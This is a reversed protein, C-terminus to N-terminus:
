LGNKWYQIKSFYNQIEHELKTKENIDLSEIIKTVQKSINKLFLDTYSPTNTLIDIFDDNIDILDACHENEYKEVEKLYKILVVSNLIKCKIWKMFNEHSTDIEDYPMSHFIPFNKENFSNKTALVNMACLNFYAIDNFIKPNFKLNREGNSIDSINYLKGFIFNIFKPKLSVKNGIKAIFDGNDKNLQLFEIECFEDICQLIIEKDYKYLTNLYYVIDKILIDKNEISNKQVLGVIIQILRLKLFIYTKSVSVELIGSDESYPYVFLNPVFINDYTKETKYLELKNNVLEYYFLKPPFRHGALLLYEILRYRSRNKYNMIFAHYLLQIIQTKSRNNNSYSEEMFNLFEEISSSNSVEEMFQIFDNLQEPWDSLDWKRLRSKGLAEVRYEIVILKTELIENFKIFELSYYKTWAIKANANITKTILNHLNNRYTIIFVGKDCLNSIFSDKIQTLFNNLKKIRNKSKDLLDINDLIYVIKIGRKKLIEYVIDHIIPDFLDETVEFDSGFNHFLNVFRNFNYSIQRKFYEDIPITNILEKVEQIFFEFQYKPYRCYYKLIVKILKNNIYKEINSHNSFAQKDLDLRVWLIRNNSLEDNYKSFFHNIFFTKGLGRESNIYLLHPNVRDENLISQNISNCSNIIDNLFSIESSKNYNPKNPVAESNINDDKFLYLKELLLSQEKRHPNTSIHGLAFTVYAEKNSLYNRKILNRDQNPYFFDTSNTLDNQHQIPEIFKDYNEVDKKLFQDIVNSLTTM